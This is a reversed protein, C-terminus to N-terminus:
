NINHLYIYVYIYYINIYQKGSMVTSDEVSWTKKLCVVTGGTYNNITLILKTVLQVFVYNIMKVSTFLLFIAYLSNQICQKKVNYLRYIYLLLKKYM